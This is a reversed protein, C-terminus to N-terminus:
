ILCSMLFGALLALILIMGVPLRWDVDEVSAKYGRHMLVVGLIAIGWLMLNFPVKWFGFYMFSGVAYGAVVIRVLWFWRRNREYRKPAMRCSVVAGLIVAALVMGWHIRLKAVLWDGFTQKLVVQVADDKDALKAQFMQEYRKYVSMDTIYDHANKEQWEARFDDFETKIKYFDVLSEVLRNYKDSVFRSYIAEESGWWANEFVRPVDGILVAAERAAKDWERQKQNQLMESQAQETKQRVKDAQNLYVYGVVALGVFVLIIVIMLAWIVCRLIKYRNELQTKYDKKDEDKVELVKLEILEREGRLFRLGLWLTLLISVGCVMIIITEM